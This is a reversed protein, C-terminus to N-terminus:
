CYCMVSNCYVCDFLGYLPLQGRNSCQKRNNQFAVNPDIFGWSGFPGKITLKSHWSEERSSWKTPLSRWSSLWPAAPWIVLFHVTHQFRKLLATPLGGWIRHIETHKCACFIPLQEHWPLGEHTHMNTHRHSGSPRWSSQLGDLNHLVSTCGWTLATRRSSWLSCAKRMRNENDTVSESWARKHFCTFTVLPNILSLYIM